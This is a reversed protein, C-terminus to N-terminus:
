TGVVSVATAPDTETATLVFTPLSINLLPDALMVIVELVGFYRSLVCNEERRQERKPLSTESV